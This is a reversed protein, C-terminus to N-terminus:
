YFLIFYKQDTVHGRRSLRSHILYYDVLSLTDTYGITGKNFACSPATYHRPRTKLEKTTTQILIM